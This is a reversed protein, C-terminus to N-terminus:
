NVNGGVTYCHGRMRILSQQQKNEQHYDKQSSHSPIEIYTQNANGQYGLISFMNEMYKNAM